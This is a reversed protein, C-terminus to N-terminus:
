RSGVVSEYSEFYSGFPECAAYRAPWQAPKLALGQIDLLLNTQQYAQAMGLPKVAVVAAITLACMTCLRRVTRLYM